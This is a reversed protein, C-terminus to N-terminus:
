NLGLPLRVEAAKAAQREARRAERRQREEKERERDAAARGGGSARRAAGGEPKGPSIGGPRRRPAAAPRGTEASGPAYGAGMLRGAKLLSYHHRFWSELPDESKSPGRQHAEKGSGAAAAGTAGSVREDESDGSGEQEADSSGSSSSADGGGGRQRKAGEVGLGSKRGMRPKPSAATDAAAAAHAKRLDSETGEEAACTSVTPLSTLMCTDPRLCTPCGPPLSGALLCYCWISCGRKATRCRWETSLLVAGGRLASAALRGWLAGGTSHKTGRSRTAGGASGRSRGSGRRKFSAVGEGM